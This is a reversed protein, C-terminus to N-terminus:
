REEGKAQHTPPRAALPQARPRARARTTRHRRRPPATCRSGPRSRAQRLPRAPRHRRGQPAPHRGPAERSRGRHGHRADPRTGVAPLGLRRGLRDRDAADARHPRPQDVGAGRARWAARPGPHAPRRRRPRGLVGPLSTWFASGIPSPFAGANARWRCRALDLRRRRAPQGGLPRAPHRHRDRVPDGPDGRSPDGLDM